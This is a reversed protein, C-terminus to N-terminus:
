NWLKAGSQSIARRAERRNPFWERKNPIPQASIDSLERWEVVYGHERFWMTAFMGSLNSM